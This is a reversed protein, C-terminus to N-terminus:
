DTLIRSRGTYFGVELCEGNAYTGTGNVGPRTATLEVARRERSFFGEVVGLHLADADPFAPFRIGGDPGFHLSPLPAIGGDGGPITPPLPFDRREALDFLTRFVTGGPVEFHVGHGFVMGKPLTKWPSLQRLPPGGPSDEPASELQFLAYSRYAGEGPFSGDAFAVIMETQSAMARSRANELFGSVEHIASKRSPSSAVLGPVTLALLLGIVASVVLIEVLSFGEGAERGSANATRSRPTRPPKM